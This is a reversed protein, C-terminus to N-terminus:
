VHYVEFTLTTQQGYFLRILDNKPDDEDFLHEPIVCGYHSTFHSAGKILNIMPYVEILENLVEYCFTSFESASGYTAGAIMFAEESLYNDFMMDNITNLVVNWDSNIIGLMIANLIDSSEDMEYLLLLYNKSALFDLNFSYFKRIPKIETNLNKFLVNM